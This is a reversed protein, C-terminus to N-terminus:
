EKKDVSFGIATRLIRLIYCSLSVENETAKEELAIKLGESFKDERVSITKKM